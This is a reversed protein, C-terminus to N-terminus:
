PEIVVKLTKGAEVAKFAEGASTLPFRQGVLKSLDIRKSEVIAAAHRCDNTSCASTGTVVLEKYHVLNSNFHITPQDKPLGGFFNIRGGIAALELAMEQAKHAPAAVIVADAGEGSTEETVIAVLDEERSDVVRDVGIRRAQEVREPVLESVIVRGAGRTQALLAHMVGIPGAGIVLVVDGPRIRIAEQGRYVCALPEILAAAAPDIARSVPILNGQRIAAAPVRMYEAFAGDLTIGLANYNACRNNNGSICQQCHGCGMNPAVFVRQGIELGKVNAGQSVLDGIVEHGPIRVTGPPYKRHEGHLIRMDTGCISTSVVKILADDPGIEPLPRDEIRLDNPGHYVAALMAEGM